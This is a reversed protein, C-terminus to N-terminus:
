SRNIYFFYLCNVFQICHTVSISKMKYICLLIFYIDLELYNETLIRTVQWFIAGFNTGFATNSVTCYMSLTENVDVDSKPILKISGECLIHM